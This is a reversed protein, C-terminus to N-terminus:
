TLHLAEPNDDPCIQKSSRGPCHSGHCTNKYKIEAAKPLHHSLIKILGCSEKVCEM